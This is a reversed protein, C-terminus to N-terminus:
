PQRSPITLSNESTHLGHAIFGTKRRSNQRLSCRKCRSTRGGRGKACRIFNEVPQVTKCCSCFHNGEALLKDRLQASEFSNAHRTALVNWDETTLRVVDGEQPEM